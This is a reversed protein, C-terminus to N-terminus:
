GFFNFNEGNVASDQSLVSASIPQHAAKYSAINSEKALKAATDGAVIESSGILADARFFGAVEKAANKVEPNKLGATLMTERGTFSIGNIM